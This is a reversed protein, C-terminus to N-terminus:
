RENEDERENTKPIYIKWIFIYDELLVRKNDIIDKGETLERRRRNEGSKKRM